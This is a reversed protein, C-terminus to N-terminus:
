LKPELPRNGEAILYYNTAMEAWMEGGFFVWNPHLTLQHLIYFIVVFLFALNGRTSPSLMNLQDVSTM